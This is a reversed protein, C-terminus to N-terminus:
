KSISYTGPCLSPGTYLGGRRNSGLSPMNPPPPPPYAHVHGNVTINQCKWCKPHKYLLVTGTEFVWDYKDHEMWHWGKHAKWDKNTISIMYMNKWTSNNDHSIYTFNQSVTQCISVIWYRVLCSDRTWHCRVQCNGLPNLYTCDFLEFVLWWQVRRNQNSTNESTITLQSQSPNYTHWLARKNSSWPTPYKSSSSPVM